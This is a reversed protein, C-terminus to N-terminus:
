TDGNCNVISSNQVATVRLRGTASLVLSKAHDYGRRDCVVIAGPQLGGTIRRPSGDATYSVYSKVWANGRMTLEQDMGERVQLLNEGVDRVGDSDTDAFVIWGQEWGGATTCASSDASKCIVARGSQKVAESRAFAMAALLGNVTSTQRNNAVFDSYAPAAMTLLIIAIALVVVLEILTFGSQVTKV